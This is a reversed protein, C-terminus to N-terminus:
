WGWMCWTQPFVGFDGWFFGFVSDTCGLFIGVGLFVLFILFILFFGLFRMFVGYGGGFGLFDGLVGNFGWLVGFVGYFGWTCWMQHLCGLFGM